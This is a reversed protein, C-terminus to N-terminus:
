RKPKAPSDDIMVRWFDGMPCTCLSLTGAKLDARVGRPSHEGIRDLHIPITGNDGCAMCDPQGGEVTRRQPTPRTFVPRSPRAFSATRRM